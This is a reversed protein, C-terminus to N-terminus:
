KHLNSVIKLPLADKAIEGRDILHQLFLELSKRKNTDLDYEIGKLYACCRSKSLPIRSAVESSIEEIKETGVDRCRLLERHISDLLDPQKEM